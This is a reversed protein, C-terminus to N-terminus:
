YVWVKTKLPMKNNAWIWNMASISVRACGHSAPYPPVSPAGHVAIGGNFYKPRWLPGLPGQRWGDIQRSATFHGAPTDALYTQDQYVYHQNSGTSTNFVQSVKGNDVIMLLQRARNIEIVHGSTSTAKPRVGETLAKQTKPGVVGDRGLGAAKQLAFVAQQTVSGFSGDAKGNWYGLETLRQQLAVVETGKAGTRLKDPTSPPKASSTTSPSPSASSPPSSSPPTTSPSVAPEVPASSVIPAPAADDDSKGSGCGAVLTLAVSATAAYTFVKRM